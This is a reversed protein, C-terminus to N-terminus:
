AAAENFRPHAAADAATTGANEAANRQPRMSAENYTQKDAIMELNEAANRQPRMSAAAVHVIRFVRCTTKRLM